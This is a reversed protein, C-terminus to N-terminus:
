QRMYQFVDNCGKPTMVMKRYFARTTLTKHASSEKEVSVGIKFPYNGNKHRCFSIGEGLGGPGAFLDIVLIEGIKM